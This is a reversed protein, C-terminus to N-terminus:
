YNSIWWDGAYTDYGFMKKIRNMEKEMAKRLAIHESEDIYTEYQKFLMADLIMDQATEKLKKKSMKKSSENMQNYAENIQTLKNM